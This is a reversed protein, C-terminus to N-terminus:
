YYIVDKKLFSKPLGIKEGSHATIKTTLPCMSQCMGLHLLLKLLLCSWNLITTCLSNRSQPRVISGRKGGSDFPLITMFQKLNPTFDKKIGGAKV